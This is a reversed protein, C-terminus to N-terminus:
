RNLCDDLCGKETLSEPPRCNCTTTEYGSLPKVDVYVDTFWVPTQPKVNLTVPLRIFYYTNKIGTKSVVCLLIACVVVTLAVLAVSSAFVVTDWVKVSFYYCFNHTKAPNNSCLWISVQDSRKIFPSMLGRTFSFCLFLLVVVFSNLLLFFISIHAVVPATFKSVIWWVKVRVMPFVRFAILARHSQDGSRTEVAMLHRLAVPFWYAETEPVERFFCCCPLNPSLFYFNFVNTFFPLLWQCCVYM